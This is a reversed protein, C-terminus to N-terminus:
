LSDLPSGGQVGPRNLVHTYIMTTSVDAHGLLEQVTRIDAGDQLLHTAFCHRLTHCGVQKSIGAEQAAKKVAKQLNSEHVHHRRRVGSRPDRSMRVSPFVYQWRWERGARPYKRALASPIYVLGDGNAIDQEHTCKVRELHERLKEVLCHPLPVRRDKGGKGNVVTIYGNDFDIDKVRLRVCEMLRMGSGYLLSAMLQNRGRLYGLLESVERRSLVTPLKRQKKPRVYDGLDGMDCKLVQGYLFVLANLAQSQTAGAVKRKLALYELYARVNDAVDVVPIDGGCFRAYRRAWDVYAQETRISMHRVRIIEKLRTIVEEAEAAIPAAEGACDIEARCDTERALTPHAADIEVFGDRLEQWDFDRAWALGVQDRLLIEVAEVAQRLQWIELQDNRGLTDVWLLLYASDVDRLRIGDLGYVFQQARRVHWQANKGVIGRRELVQAYEAWFKREGDTMKRAM